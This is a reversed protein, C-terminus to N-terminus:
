WGVARPAHPPGNALEAPLGQQEAFAGGRRAIIGPRGLEPRVPQGVAAEVEARTVGGDDGRRALAGNQSTKEGLGRLRRKELAIWHRLAHRQRRLLRGAVLERAHKQGPARM